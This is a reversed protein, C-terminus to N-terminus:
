AYREETQPSALPLEGRGRIVDPLKLAYTLGKVEGRVRQLEEDPCDLLKKYRRDREEALKRQYLKWGPHDMVNFIDQADGALSM